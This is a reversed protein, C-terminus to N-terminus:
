GYYKRSSNVLVSWERPNQVLHGFLPGWLLFDYFRLFYQPVYISTKDCNGLVVPRMIGELFKTCRDWERPTKAFISLFCSFNGMRWLNKVVKEIRISETIQWFPRKQPVLGRSYLVITVKSPSSPSIPDSTADRVRSWRARTLIVSTLLPM